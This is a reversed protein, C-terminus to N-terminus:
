PCVSSAVCTPFHGHQDTCCIEGTACCVDGCPVDCSAADEEAGTSGSDDGADPDGADAAADDGSGADEHEHAQESGCGAALMAAILLRAAHQINIM